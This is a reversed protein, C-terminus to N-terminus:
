MKEADKQNAREAVQRDQYLKAEMELKKRNEARMRLKTDEKDNLAAIDRALTRGEHDAFKDTSSFKNQMIGIIHDKRAGM